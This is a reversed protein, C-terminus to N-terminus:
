EIVWAVIGNKDIFDCIKDIDSNKARISVQKFEDSM